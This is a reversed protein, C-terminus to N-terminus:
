KPGPYDTYGGSKRDGPYVIALVLGILASGIAIAASKNFLGGEAWMAIVCSAVGYFVLGIMWVIAPILSAIMVTEKSPRKM